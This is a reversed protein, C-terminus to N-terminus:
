SQEGELGRPVPRREYDRRIAILLDEATERMIWDGRGDKRRAQFGDRNHMISYADGWHFRLDELEGATRQRIYDDHPGV